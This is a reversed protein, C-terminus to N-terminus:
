DAPQVIVREAPFGDCTAPPHPKDCQALSEPLGLLGTQTITLQGPAGETFNNYPSSRLAGDASQHMSMTLPEQGPLPNGFLQLLDPLPMNPGPNIFTIHMSSNALAHTQGEPPTECPRYGFALSGNFDFTFGPDDVAWALANKTILNVTVQVRGDKLDRETVSGAFRTGFNTVHGDPRTFSDVLGAYDVSGLRGDVAASSGFFNPFPEVFLFCPHEPDGTELCYTGQAAIFEEISRERGAQATSALALALVAVLVLEGIGRPTKRETKVLAGEWRRTGPAM